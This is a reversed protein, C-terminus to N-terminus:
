LQRSGSRCKTAAILPLWGDSSTTFTVLPIYGNLFSCNITKEVPVCLRQPFWVPSTPGNWVYGFREIEIEEELCFLGDFRPLHSSTVYEVEAFQQSETIPITILVIKIWHISFSIFYMVLLNFAMSSSFSMSDSQFNAAITISLHPCM